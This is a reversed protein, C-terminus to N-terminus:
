LMGNASLLGRLSWAITRVWNTRVLRAAADEGCRENQDRYEEGGGDDGADVGGIEVEAVVIEVDGLEQGRDSLGFRWDLRLRLLM